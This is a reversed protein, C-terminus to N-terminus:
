FNHFKDCYPRGLFKHTATEDCLDCIIDSSLVVEGDTVISLSFPKDKAAVLSAYRVAEDEDDFSGAVHRQGQTTWHVNTAM